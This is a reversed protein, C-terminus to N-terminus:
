SSVGTRKLKEIKGRLLQAPEPAAAALRPMDAVAREIEARPWRLLRPGLSVPRPMWPENRLEHFKRVSVGLCAASQDDNMLVPFFAAGASQPASQAAPQPTKAGRDADVSPAQCGALGGIAQINQQPM